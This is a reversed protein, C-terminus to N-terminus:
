WAPPPAGAQPRLVKWIGDAALVVDDGRRLVGRTFILSRTERVISSDAEIVDGLQAGSVFQVNLQITACPKRGIAEWVTMGISQDMFTMLMGGHVVGNGNLHREEVVFAYRRTGDQVRTWFPGVLASFGPVGQESWGADALRM